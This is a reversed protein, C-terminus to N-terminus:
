NGTRTYQTRPMLYWFRKYQGLHTLGQGAAGPNISQEFCQLDLDSLKERLVYSYDAHCPNLYVHLDKNLLYDAHYPNEYVYLDKNLLEKLIYSIIILPNISQEFCQLDLDSLKERLVYSYDAHCPNLYVHLDKNLLYDAHYPNEYVYLDKNLLEKLIYSIIIM